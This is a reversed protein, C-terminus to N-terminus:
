RWMTAMSIFLGDGCPQWVFFAMEVHNGYFYFPWRWMIAMSIFLGDGCPQWLFLFAMAVHNGYFYLHWRWMTAVSIFFILFMHVYIDHKSIEKLVSVTLGGFFYLFELFVLLLACLLQFESSGFFQSCCTLLVSGEPISLMASAYVGCPLLSM